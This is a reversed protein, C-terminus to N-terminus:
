FTVEEEIAIASWLRTLAGSVRTEILSLQQNYKIDFDTFHSIQGGKTAGVSYDVLNVILALLKKTKGSIADVRTKNEFQEVTHITGVNLASALESVSSYIRRGNLDRALLMINLEHPHIYMDPKGSGKYKERAYLCANVMAEAHIYNDGFNAGTNTGQLERKAAAFDIDTHITYLDDDTWIPRIHDEKIKDEDGIDRGDGILIATALEEDLMMKDINYMYQVYDFDTIDTIDDKHLANRVYVTQPDTERKALVFNGTLKKEKGKEYGKARLADINRIDVQRTRIRSFPLKHVKNLVGQIWGQDNTVLEPAGPRVDKYEPFLYTVNGPVSTDQSFGSAPAVDDAHMLEVDNQECYFTLADQFSGTKQALDLIAEQDSHQLVSGTKVDNEFVNHKVEEEEEKDSDNKTDDLAAGIIAYVATKQKENLTDFVDKVTEEDEPKKTEEKKTDEAMDEKEKEEAHALEEGAQEEDKVEEEDSEPEPDAEEKQSDFVIEDLAPKEETHYLDFPEGSVYVFWGDEADEGHAMSESDIYAGPNAPAIVLSVEKIAGHLVEHGKQKLKNAYISLSRIDGHKIAEKAVNGNETDNFSLYARVGGKVNKLLAHGLINEIGNHQHNWVLPVIEGDNDKFADQRIIRGDACVLDNKTAWGCYDFKM